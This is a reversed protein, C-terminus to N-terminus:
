VERGIFDVSTFAELISPTYFFVLLLGTIIQGVLIFGLFRGM